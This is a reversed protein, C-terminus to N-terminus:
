FVSKMICPVPAGVTVNAAFPPASNRKSIRVAPLQPAVPMRPHPVPEDLAVPKVDHLKVSLQVDPPLLQEVRVVPHGLLTSIRTYRGATPLLQECYWSRTV